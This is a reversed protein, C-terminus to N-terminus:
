GQLILIPYQYQKQNPEVYKGPNGNHLITKTSKESYTKASSEVIDAESYYQLDGGIIETIKGKVTRIRSM